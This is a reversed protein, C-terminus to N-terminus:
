TAEELVPVAATTRSPLAGEHLSAGSIELCLAQDANVGKGDPQSAASIAAPRAVGHRDREIRIGISALVRAACRQCVGHTISGAPGHRQGLQSGCWACIATM